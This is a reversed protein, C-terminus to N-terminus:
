GRLIEKVWKLRMEGEKSGIPGLYVTGDVELFRFGHQIHIAPPNYALVHAVQEQEQSDLQVMRVPLRRAKVQGNGLVMTTKTLIRM